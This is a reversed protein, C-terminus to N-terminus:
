VALTVCFIFNQIKDEDSRNYKNGVLKLGESMARLKERSAHTFIMDSELRLFVSNDKEFTPAKSIALERYAQFSSIYEQHVLEFQQMVPLIFDDHLSRKVRQSEKALDVLKEVLKLFVDLM